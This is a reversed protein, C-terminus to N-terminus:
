SFKAFILTANTGGFGFSNSLVNRLERKRAEGPVLNLQQAEPAPNELNITPPVTASKIALVSFVAELGGAAGLLHGTVGKTSSMWLGDTAWAGFVARAAALELVDGVPTSTGHANVYDIADPALQADRLASRMARQAGEGEPAPQTLHYADASAGYGVVEAYIKAGRRRAQELEELFILGAGEAIVFGDRGQDWPRSARTPEDNRKSLARMAAFGGVGLPTVAAETGGALCADLDGHAIARFADGIAHAGSACASTVAYNIGKLGHKLSVQGPALNSIATPIFYPSIRGPGREALVKATNEIALLGGIGVGFVTGTRIKQEETLEGLGADRLAEDAAAMALHTFRDMTRVDKKAIHAEPDFGRCEGAITAAFGTADFLSIQAIGSKGEVASRFSSAADVGCPSVAGVGTVVVRRM